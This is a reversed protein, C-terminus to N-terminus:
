VKSILTLCHQATGLYKEKSSTFLLYDHFFLGTKHFHSNTVSEESYDKPINQPTTENPLSNSTIPHEPPSHRTTHRPTNAAQIQKDGEGLTPLDMRFFPFPLLWFWWWCQRIRQNILTPDTGEVHSHQSLVWVCVCVYTHASMCVYVCVCIYVCMSMSVCYLYVSVYMCLCVYVYICVYVYPCLCVCPCVCVWVYVCLCVCLHVCVCVRVYVCMYIYVFM